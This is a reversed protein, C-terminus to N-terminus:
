IVFLFLFAVCFLSSLNVCLFILLKTPLSLYPGIAFTVAMALTKFCKLLAYAPEPIEHYLLSVMLNCFLYMSSDGIAFLAATLYVVVARTGLWNMSFLNVIFFYFLILSINTFYGLLAVYVGGFKDAIKGCFYFAFVSGVGYTTMVFGIDRTGLSPKIIEATFIGFIFSQIVGGSIFSPILLLMKIDRFLSLVLSIKTMLTNEGNTKPANPNEEARLLLMSIVSVGALSIFIYILINISERDDNLVFSSLLNGIVQSFM